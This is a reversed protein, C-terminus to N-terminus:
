FYAQKKPNRVNLSYIKSRVKSKQNMFLREAENVKDLPFDTQEVRDLNSFNSNETKWDKELKRKYKLETVLAAPLSRSAM